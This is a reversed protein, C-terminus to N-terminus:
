EGLKGLYLTFEFVILDLHLTKYKPVYHLGAGIQLTSLYIEFRKSSFITIDMDGGAAKAAKM